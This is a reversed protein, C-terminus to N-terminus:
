DTEAMERAIREFWAILEDLGLAYLAVKKQHGSTLYIGDLGGRDGFRPAFVHNNVMQHCVFLLDHPATRGRALDYLEALAHSSGILDRPSRYRHSTLPVLEHLAREGLLGSEALKWVTYLSALVTLELKVLAAATWHAREAQSGLDRVRRELDQKWFHSDQIM